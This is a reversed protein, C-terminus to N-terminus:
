YDINLGAVHCVLYEPTAIKKHKRNLITKITHWDHGYGNQWILNVDVRHCFSSTGIYCQEPRVERLIKKTGDFLYDDYYFWDGDNANNSITVLHDPGLMDDSDLYCVLEGTAVRLGAQRVQGSFNSQKEIQVLKLNPCGNYTENFIKITKQCGDSVIILESDPYTQGLYSDVARTFKYERNSASKHPGEVYENLYSPM